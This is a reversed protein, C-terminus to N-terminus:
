VTACHQDEALSLVILYTFLHVKFSFSYSPLGSVGIIVLVCILYIERKIENGAEEHVLFFFLHSINQTNWLLINRRRLHPCPVRHSTGCDQIGFSVLGTFRSLSSPPLIPKGRRHGTEGSRLDAASSLFQYIVNRMYANSTLAAEVGCDRNGEEASETTPAAPRQEEAMYSAPRPPIQTLSVQAADGASFSASSGATGVPSTLQQSSEVIRKLKLVEKKLLSCRQELQHLHAKHAMEIKETERQHQAERQAMDETAKRLAEQLKAENEHELRQEIEEQAASLADLDEQMRRCAQASENARRAAAELQQEKEALAEEAKRRRTENSEQLEQVALCVSSVLQRAREVESNLCAALDEGELGTLAQAYSDPEHDGLLKMLETQPPVSKEGTEGPTEHPAAVELQVLAAILRRFADAVLKLVGQTAAVKQSEAQVRALVKEKWVAMKDQLQELKERRGESVATVAALREEAAEQAKASAEMEAALKGELLGISERLLLLESEATAVKSVMEGEQAMLREVKDQLDAAEAEAARSRSNLREMEASRETLLDNASTYRSEADRAAIQLAEREAGIQQVMAELEVIRQERNSGESVKAQLEALKALSTSAEAVLQDREAIVRKLKLHLEEVQTETEKRLATLEDKLETMHSETTQAAAVLQDREATMEFLKRRLDSAEQDREAATATLREQLEAIQADKAESATALQDREAEVSTLRARLEARQLDHQARLDDLQSQLQAAEAKASSNNQQLAILNDRDAVADELQKRLGELEAGTLSALEKAQFCEETAKELERRLEDRAKDSASAAAALHDREAIAECLKRQLDSASADKAAITATLEDKLETMHSETTQAAAVLQDREATMEFLKRRLDSAEQDREAATATLREQLEAIQADKAESATALQDREDEVSTLRARLEARQLDHQARLDDLQSQLQAAEAKASSNNQQLAILNDRDAVADELQKRLGELEAGTLSALEKAQFCEETAKELERRLEDRAKDSASAAAALHDREATAECLKRQLDSASADKAAITATLEDKLETMHSETTQAAAVLQDREATMEFLKRRLDSAEQDREAATATLREQLEAIQADKAESATALQDREAEVSTLRARLEARQLDHQARLDDLQSQLQAAEAKASSNNQQLAILNDRDAVADELQKRLGELEAGTLSALEKAQFCEETAKELERRLVDMENNHKTSDQQSAIRRDKELILAESQRRWEETENDPVEAAAVVHLSEGGGQQHTETDTADSATSLAALKNREAVVSELKKKLAAVTEMGVKRLQQVAFLNDHEASAKEFQQHLWSMEEGGGEGDTQLKMLEAHEAMVSELQQKLHETLRDRESTLREVQERLSTVQAEAAAAAAGLSERKSKLTALKDQLKGIQTNCQHTTEILQAQIVAQQDDREQTVEALKAELDVLQTEHQAQTDALKAELEVIKSKMEILRATSSASSTSSPKEAKQAAAETLSSVQSQLEQILQRDRTTLAVAKAKWARQQETLLNYKAECEELKGQLTRNLEELTHIRDPCADHPPAPAGGGQKWSSLEDQLNRCKQDSDNIAETFRQQQALMTAMLQDHEETKKRLAEQKEELERQLATVAISECKPDTESKAKLADELQQIRERDKMNLEKVKEKWLQVKKEYVKFKQKEARLQSELSPAEAGEGGHETSEMERFTWDVWVSFIMHFYRERWKEGSRNRNSSKMAETNDFVFSENLHRFIYLRDNYIAGVVDFVYLLLAHIFTSHQYLILAYLSHDYLSFLFLKLTFSLHSVAAYGLRPEERCRYRVTEILHCRNYRNGNGKTKRNQEDKKRCHVEEGDANHDDDEPTQDDGEEKKVVVRKEGLVHKKIKTTRYFDLEDFKFNDMAYNFFVTRAGFGSAKTKGLKLPRVTKASVDVLDHEGKFLYRIGRWSRMKSKGDETCALVARINSMWLTVATEIVSSSWRKMVALPRFGVGDMIALSSPLKMEAAGVASVFHRADMSLVFASGDDEQGDRAAASTRFPDLETTSHDVMCGFAVPIMDTTKKNEESSETLMDCQVMVGDSFLVDRPVTTETPHLHPDVVVTVSMSLHLYRDFCELAEMLATLFQLLYSVKKEANPLLSLEALDEKVKDLVSSVSKADKVDYIPHQASGPVREATAPPPSTNSTCNPHRKGEDSSQDNPDDSDGMKDRFTAHMWAVHSVSIRVSGACKLCCLLHMFCYLPAAYLETCVDNMTFPTTFNIYPRDKHYYSVFSKRNSSKVSGLFSAIAYHPFASYVSSWGSSDVVYEQSSKQLKESVPVHIQLHPVFIFGHLGGIVQVLHLLQPYADGSFFNHLSVNEPSLGRRQYDQWHIRQLVSGVMRSGYRDVTDLAKLIEPPDGPLAADRLVADCTLRKNSDHSLLSIIIKAIGENKEIFWQPLKANRNKWMEKMIAQTERFDVGEITLWMELAIMGISFEDVKLTYKKGDNMEPACYLVTGRTTSPLCHFPSTQDPSVISEEALTLSSFAQKLYTGKKYEELERALGFDVVRINCNEFSATWNGTADFLINEPKLDRHVINEHHTHAIVSLLQRLISSAVNVANPSHFIDLNKESGNLLDRLTVSSCLEMQIYLTQYNSTRVSNRQRGDSSLSSDTSSTETDDDSSGGYLKSSFTSSSDSAETEEESEEDSESVFQALDDGYGDEVWADYYRVVNKHNLNALTKVERLVTDTKQKHMVIKKVAYQRGDLKKRCVFVPAYGGCGLRQQEIFEEEYRGQTTAHAAAAECPVGWLWTLKQKLAPLMGGDGEIEKRYAKLFLEDRWPTFKEYYPLLKQQEGLYQFLEHFTHKAEEVSEPFNLYCCKKLLFCALMSLKVGDKEKLPIPTLAPSNGPSLPAPAAPPPLVLEEPMESNDSDTDLAEQVTLIIEMMSGFGNEVCPRIAENIKKELAIIRLPDVMLPVSIGKVRSFSVTPPQYPYYHELAINLVVQQAPNVASQLPLKLVQHSQKGSVRVSPYMDKILQVEDTILDAIATVRRGDLIVVSDVKGTTLASTMRAGCNDNRVCGQPPVERPAVALDGEPIFTFILHEGCRLGNLVVDFPSLLSLSLSFSPIPHHLYWLANTLFTSFIIGRNPFTFGSSDMWRLNLFIFPLRAWQYKLGDDLPRGTRRRKWKKRITTPGHQLAINLRHAARQLTSTTGWGLRQPEPIVEDPMSVSEQQEVHLIKRQQRLRRMDEQTKLHHCVVCLTQINVLTSEGVGQSVPLIHDAHWLHGALPAAMAREALQPFELLLPHRRAIIERRRQASPGPAGQLEERLQECDVHCSSCVGKDAQRVAHRISASSHRAFFDERCQGCCFLHTDHPVEVVAGPYLTGAPLAFPCTADLAAATPVSLATGCNLCTPLFLGRVSDVVELRSFYFAKAGSASPRPTAFWCGWGIELKDSRGKSTDSPRCFRRQTRSSILPMSVNLKAGTATWEVPRGGTGGRLFTRRQYSSLSDFSTLFLHLSAWFPKSRGRICEHAEEVTLSAYDGFACPLSPASAMSRTACVHIRGTNKSVSFWYTRSEMTDSPHSTDHVPLAAPLSPPAEPTDRRDVVNKCDLLSKQLRGFHAEDFQSHMGIVYFINVSCRQGPRHLRDEAQTMWTADPPLECFVACQATTLSVGVGCATVGMVAVRVEEAAFRRLLPERHNPDVEGDIRILPIHKSVLFAEVKSLLDRHHCFCVVTRFKSIVYRLADAIGDWKLRWSNAYAAQFSTPPEAFALPDSVKLLTRHKLPLNLIEAKRRRVMFRFHLLAALERPRWCELVRMHPSFHLRCYHLAFHLRSEGLFGPAIADLINFLDFPSSTAPTGTLFLCHPAAKALACVTSTYVADEGTINTHLFHAEDCVICRWQINSLKQRMAAAMHFSIVVVQPVVSDPLADNSGKVMYIQDFGVQEFLYKEVEEAWMVKLASPVVLLLPYGHIAAVAGLAELTKGVGMEDAILARCGLRLVKEVASIQHPLLAKLLASPVADLSVRHCKAANEAAEFCRWVSPKPPAIHFSFCCSSRAAQLDEMFSSILGAPVCKEELFPEMISSLMQLVEVEESASFNLFSFRMVKEAFMLETVVIRLGSTGAEQECSILPVFPLPNYGMEVSHAYKCLKKTFDVFKKPCGCSYVGGFRSIRFKLHQRCSECYKDEPLLLDEMADDTIWSLGTVLGLVHQGPQMSEIHVPPNEGGHSLEHPTRRGMPKRTPRPPEKMYMGKARLERNSEGYRALQERACRQNEIEEWTLEWSDHHEIALLVMHKAAKIISEREKETLDSVKEAPNGAWMEGSPIIAGAQLVSAACLMAGSEIKCGKMVVAGAGVFSCSAIDASEVIAMPEITSWKGVTTNGTVVAKEQINCSEALVISEGEEARVIANYGIYNKRGVRVDGSVLACPAIFCNDMVSPRKDKVQLLRPLRYLEEKPQQGILYDSVAIIGGACKQMSAATGNLLKTLLTTKKIAWSPLNAPAAPSGAAARLFCRRFMICNFNALLAFFFFFKQVNVLTTGEKWIKKKHTLKKNNNNNNTQKNLRTLLASYKGHSRCIESKKKAEYKQVVDDVIGLIVFFKINKIPFMDFYFAVSPVARMYVTIPRSRWKASYEYSPVVKKMKSGSIYRTPIVDLLYKVDMIQDATFVTGDLSFQGSSSFREVQDNGFSLYNIKHSSQFELVDTISYANAQIASGKPGFMVAGRVKKLRISGQVKCGPNEQSVQFLCQPVKEHSPASQGQQKYFDEVNQCTKCCKQNHQTTSSFLHEDGSVICPGCYQPSEPDDQAVYEAQGEFFDYFGNKGTFAVEGAKTLPVKHLSHTINRRLTGSADALDVRLKHCPTLPFDIDINMMMHGLNSEEISLETRYASWGFAYDLCESLLLLAMITFSLLSIRAGLPTQSRSYDEKPKPFMDVKALRSPKKPSVEVVEDMAPVNRRVRTKQQPIIMCYYWHVSGFVYFNYSM